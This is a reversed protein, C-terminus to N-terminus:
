RFDEVVFKLIYGYLTNSRFVDMGDLTIEGIGFDRSIKENYILCDEIMESLIDVRNGYYGDQEYNDIIDKHCLAYVMIKCEKTSNHIKPIIVDYFIYSDQETVTDDIYLHSKVHKKFLNRIEKASKDKIDGLLLTKIPEYNILAANLKRKYKGRAKITAIEVAM